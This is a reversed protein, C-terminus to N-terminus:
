LPNQIQSFFRKIDKFDFNRKLSNLCHSCWAVNGKIYGIKADIRDLSLAHIEADIKQGEIKLFPALPKASLYCRGGQKNWLQLLFAVDLDSEQGFHRLSRYRWKRLYLRIFDEVTQKPSPTENKRAAKKKRQRCPLCTHQLYRKNFKKDFMSWTNSENLPALCTLCKKQLILQQRKTMCYKVRFFFNTVM